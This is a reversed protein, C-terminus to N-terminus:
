ALAMARVKWDRIKYKLEEINGPRKTWASATRRMEFVLAGGRILKQELIDVARELAKSVEDDAEMSTVVSELSDFIEEPTSREWEEVPIRVQRYKAAPIVTNEDPTEVEGAARLADVIEYATNTDTVLFSAIEDLRVSRKTLVLNLVRTWDDGNEMLASRLTQEANSENNLVAMAAASLRKLRQQLRDIEHRLDDAEGTNEQVPGKRAMSQVREDQLKRMEQSMKELASRYKSAEARLAQIEEDKASLAQELEEIRASMESTRRQTSHLQAQLIEIKQNLQQIVLTKERLRDDSMQM